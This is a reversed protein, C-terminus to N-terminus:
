KDAKTYRDLFSMFESQCMGLLGIRFFNNEDTNESPKSSLYFSRLAEANDAIVHVPSSISKDQLDVYYKNEIFASIFNTVHGFGTHSSYFVLENIAVESLGTMKNVGQITENRTCIDSRGTLYDLSVDFCDALAQAYELKPTTEGRLYAGIAQSTVGIKKSLSKQTEAHKKVLQRLRTPFIEKYKDTDFKSTYSM